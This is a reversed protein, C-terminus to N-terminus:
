VQHCTAINARILLSLRSDNLKSSFDARNDLYELLDLIQLPLDTDGSEVSDGIWDITESVIPVAARIEENTFDKQGSLRELAQLNGLVRLEDQSLSDSEDM